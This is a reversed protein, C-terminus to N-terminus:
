GEKEGGQRETGPAEGGQRESFNDLFVREQPTVSGPGEREIRAMIRDLEERNVSHLEDRRIKSWRALDSRTPRPTRLKAEVHRQRPARDLLRLYVVAAVVGGLHAFHAVGGGGRFGMFLDLAAMTLVAYRAEMPVVWLIMRDKPWFRAYGYMVGLVAGSAGIIASFPSFVWSLLGGAIGSVLYLGVFRAGALQAELRPGFFYLALMNFFIHGLDQHL